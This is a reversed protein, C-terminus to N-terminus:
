PLNAGLGAWADAAEPDVSWLGSRSNRAADRLRDFEALQEAAAGPLGIAWGQAVLERSLLQGQEGVLDGPVRGYKDPRDPDFRLQYRGLGPLIAQLGRTAHRGLELLRDEPLGTRVIDRQLKPNVADEPADIGEIQVRHTADGIVVVLTDADEVQLETPPSEQAAAVAAMWGLSVLLGVYRNM